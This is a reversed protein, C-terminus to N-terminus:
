RGSLGSQWFLGGKNEKHDVFRGKDYVAVDVDELTYSDDITNVWSVHAPGLNQKLADILSLHSQIRGCSELAAACTKIRDWVDASTENEGQKRHMDLTWKQSPASGSSMYKRMVMLMMKTGLEPDDDDLKNYM